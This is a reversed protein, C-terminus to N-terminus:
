VLIPIAVTTRPLASTNTCSSKFSYMKSSMTLGVVLQEYQQAINTFVQNAFSELPRLLGSLELLFTHWSYGGLKGHVRTKGSFLNHGADLPM